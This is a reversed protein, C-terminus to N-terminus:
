NDTFSTLFKSYLKTLPGSTARKTTRFSESVKKRKQGRNAAEVIMEDLEEDDPIYDDDGDDDEDDGAAQEPEEVEEEEDQGVQEEEDQGAQEVEENDEEEEEDHVEAEGCQKSGTAAVGAEHAAQAAAATPDMNGVTFSIKTLPGSSHGAHPGSSSLVVLVKFM